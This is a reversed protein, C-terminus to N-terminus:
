FEIITWIQLDNQPWFAWKQGNTLIAIKNQGSLRHVLDQIRFKEANRVNFNQIRASEFYGNFIITLVRNKPNELM